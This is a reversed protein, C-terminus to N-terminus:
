TRSIAGLEQVNERLGDRDDMVEPLDKLIYRCLASTLRQQDALM